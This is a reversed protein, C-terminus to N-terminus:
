SLPADAKPCFTECPGLDQRRTSSPPQLHGRRLQPLGSNVKTGLKDILRGNRWSGMRTMQPARAGECADHVVFGGLEVVQQGAARVKTAEPPVKGQKPFVVECAKPALSGTDSLLGNINCILM